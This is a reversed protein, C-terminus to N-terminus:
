EIKKRVHRQLPSEFRVRTDDSPKHAKRKGSSKNGLPPFLRKIDISMKGDDMVSWM